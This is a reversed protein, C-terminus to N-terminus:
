HAHYIRRDLYTMHFPSVICFFITLRCHKRLVSLGASKQNYHAIHSIKDEYVILSNYHLTKILGLQGKLLKVEQLPHPSLYRGHRFVAFFPLHLSPSNAPPVNGIVMVHHQQAARWRAYSSLGAQLFSHGKSIKVSIGITLSNMGDSISDYSKGM